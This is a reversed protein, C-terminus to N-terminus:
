FSELSMLGGENVPLPHSCAGLLSPGESSNYFSEIEKKSGQKQVMFSKASWNVLKAGNRNLGNIFGSTAEDKAFLFYAIREFEGLSITLGIIGVISKIERSCSEIKEEPVKVEIIVLSIGNLDTSYQNICQLPYGPREFVSLIRSLMGRHNECRITFLKTTLNKHNM